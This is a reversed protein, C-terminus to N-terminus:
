RKAKYGKPVKTKKINLRRRVKMTKEKKRLTQSMKAKRKQVGKRIGAKQKATLRKKRKRKVIPIKIKKGGRVAVKYREDVDYHKDFDEYDYPGYCEFMELERFDAFIENFNESIKIDLDGALLLSALTSKNMWSLDYLAPRMGFNGKEIPPSYTDLDVVVVYDDDIALDDDEDDIVIVEVGEDEDYTFILTLEDGDVDQLEILINDEYDSDVNIVSIPFDFKDLMKQFAKKITEGDFPTGGFQSGVNFVQPSYIETSMMTLIEEAKNM